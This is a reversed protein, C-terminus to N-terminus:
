LASKRAALGGEITPAFLNQQGQVRVDADGRRLALQRGHDVVHISQHDM